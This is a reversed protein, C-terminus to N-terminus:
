ITSIAADYFLPSLIRIVMWGETDVGTIELRLEEKIGDAATSSPAVHLEHLSGAVATSPITLTAGTIPSTPWQDEHNRTFVKISTGNTTTGGQDILQVRFFLGDGGRSFPSSVVVEDRNIRRGPINM